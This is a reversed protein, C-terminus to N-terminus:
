TVGEGLYQATKSDKEANIKNFKENFSPDDLVLESLRYDTMRRNQKELEMYWFILAAIIYLLLFWYLFLLKRGKLKM